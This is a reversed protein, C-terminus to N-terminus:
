PHETVSVDSQADKFSIESIDVNLNSIDSVASTATQLPIDGRNTSASTLAHVAHVSGNMVYEASKLSVDTDTLTEPPSSTCTPPLPPDTAPETAPDAARLASTAVVECAHQPSLNHALPQPPSCVATDKPESTPPHPPKSSPCAGTSERGLSFGGQHQTSRAQAVKLQEENHAICHQQLVHVGRVTSQSTLHSNVGDESFALAHVSSQQPMMTHMRSHPSPPLQLVCSESMGKPSEADAMDADAVDADAVDASSWAIAGQAKLAIAHINRWSNRTEEFLPNRLAGSSSAGLLAENAMEVSPANADLSTMEVGGPVGGNVGGDGLAADSRRPAARPFSEDAWEWQSLSRHRHPYRTAYGASRGRLLEQPEDASSPRTHQLSRMLEFDRAERAAGFDEVASSEPFNQGSPEEAVADNARDQNLAAASAAPAADANGSGGEVGGGARSSGGEIGLPDRAGGGRGNSESVKLKQTCAYLTVVRLAGVPTDLPVKGVASLEARCVPCLASRASLVKYACTGCYGGHGCNLLM